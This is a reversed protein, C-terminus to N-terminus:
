ELLKQTHLSFDSSFLNERMLFEIASCKKAESKAPPTYCKKTEGKEKRTADSNKDNPAHYAFANFTFKSIM